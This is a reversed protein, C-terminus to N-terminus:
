QYRRKRDSLKLSEERENWGSYCLRAVKKELDNEEIYKILAKRYGNFEIDKANIKAGNKKWTGLDVLLDVMSSVNDIGLDYYIDFEVQRRKGTVKNKSIDVKVHSGIVIKGDKHYKERILWHITTCYFDLAKGGTRTKKSGFTGANLNERVQSIVILLSDTKKISAKFKRLLESFYRARETKYSTGLADENKGADVNKLHKAYREQEEQSSLADLSDLVYVFKKKSQIAREFNAIFDQVTESNIIRLRRSMKTGFLYDMDFESAYEADDYILDYEDYASNNAMEALMSLVEISKGAHSDGIVNNITGKRYGGVSAKDSLALNLPIIGTPLFGGNKEPAKKKGNIARRIESTKRKM